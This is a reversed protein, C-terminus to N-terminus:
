RAPPQTKKRAAVLRASLKDMVVESNVYGGGTRAAELSQIGRAVFDHQNRSLTVTERVATKVLQNLTQRDGLLSDIASRFEPDVRISPRTTTKM